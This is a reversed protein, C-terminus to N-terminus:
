SFIFITVTTRTVIRNMEQVLDYLIQRAFTKFSKADDDSLFTITEQQQQQQNEDTRQYLWMDRAFALPTM